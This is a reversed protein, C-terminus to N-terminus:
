LTSTFNRGPISATKEMALFGLAGLALCTALFTRRQMSTAAPESSRESPSRPVETEM